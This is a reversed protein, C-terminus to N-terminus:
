LVLQYLELMLPLTIISLIVSMVNIAGARQADNDFLDAMQTVTAAAPAGIALFLIMLIDKAFPIIHTVRTVFLVLIMLSPYIILRGACVLWNRKSLFTRKLDAEAMIMGIMIMCVPGITSGVSKVTTGLIGPLRTNTFFLLLGVVASLINPNAVIKKINMQRRGGIASVAHTWFFCLQVVIFACCYFVQDQGLLVSVLPIILNGGNSYILSCKEIVNIHLTKELPKSIWIFVLHMIFAFVAALMLSSFKEPTYDIQFADIVMCPVIIYLAIASLLSSQGSKVVGLKVIAFGMLIMLMMSLMQWFLLISLEM